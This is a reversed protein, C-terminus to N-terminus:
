LLYVMASHRTQCIAMNCQPTAHSNVSAHGQRSYKCFYRLIHMNLHSVLGHDQDLSRLIDEVKALNGRDFGEVQRTSILSVLYSLIDCTRSTFKRHPVVNCIMQVHQPVPCHSM